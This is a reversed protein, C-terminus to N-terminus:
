NEAAVRITSILASRDEGQMSADGSLAGITIGRIAAGNEISCEHTGRFRGNYDGSVQYKDGQATFNGDYTGSVTNPDDLGIGGARIYITGSADESPYVPGFTRLDTLEGTIGQNDSPAFNATLTADGVVRMVSRNDHTAVIEVVGNGTFTAPGSIPIAAYSTGPMASIDAFKQAAAAADKASQYQAITDTLGCGSLTASVIIVPICKPYSIQLLMVFSVIPFLVNIEWLKGLSGWVTRFEGNFYSAFQFPGM